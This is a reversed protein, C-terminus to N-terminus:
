VFPTHQIPKRFAALEFICRTYLNMYTVPPWLYESLIEPSM